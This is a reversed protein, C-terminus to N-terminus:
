SAQFSHIMKPLNIKLGEISWDSNQSESFDIVPPGRIVSIKPFQFYRTLHFWTFKLELVPYQPILLSKVLM